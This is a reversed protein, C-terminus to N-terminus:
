QITQELSSIEGYLSNNVEGLKEAELARSALELALSDNRAQLDEIAAQNQQLLTDQNCSEEVRSDKNDSALIENLEYINSRGNNSAM